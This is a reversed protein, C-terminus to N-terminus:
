RRRNRRRPGKKGQRKNIEKAAFQDRINLGFGKPHYDFRGLRELEHALMAADRSAIEVADSFDLFASLDLKSLTTPLNALEKRWDFSFSDHKLDSM